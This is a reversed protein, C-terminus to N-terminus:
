APCPARRVAAGRKERRDYADHASVILLSLVLAAVTAILGLVLKV